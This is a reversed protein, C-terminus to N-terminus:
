GDSRVVVASGTQLLEGEGSYSRSREVAFWNAELEYEDAVVLRDGDVEFEGAEIAADIDDVAAGFEPGVVSYDPDVGAIETTIEPDDARRELREVHM